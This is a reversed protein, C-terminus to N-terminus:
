QAGDSVQQYVLHGRRIAAHDFASFFSIHDWPYEPAHLGHESEEEALAGQTFAVGAAGVAVLGMYRASKKFSEGTEAGTAKQTADTASSAYVVQVMNVSEHSETSLLRQLGTMFSPEYVIFAQMPEMCGHVVM